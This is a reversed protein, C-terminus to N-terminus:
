DSKKLMHQKYILTNGKMDKVKISSFYGRDFVAQVMANMSGMDHTALAQSLSLGLSTATDQANSDLQQIFFNRANNVTILYTGAFVLLLLGLVGLAMKKTLTM